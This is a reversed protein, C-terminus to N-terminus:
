SHPGTHTATAPSVGGQLTARTVDAAQLYPGSAAFLGAIERVGALKVADGSAQAVSYEWVALTLYYRDEDHTAGPVKVLFAPESLAQANQTVSVLVVNDKDSSSAM